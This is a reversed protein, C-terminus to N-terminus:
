VPTLSWAYGDDHPAPAPLSRAGFSEIRYNGAGGLQLTVTVPWPSDNVV